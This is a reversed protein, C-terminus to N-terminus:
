YLLRANPPIGLYIGPGIPKMLRYSPADHTSGLFGAQIFRINGQNDIVLQTNMCHYHRHGNYFPRQPESLLRYIRHPIADIASTVNHFEPRNGMLNGWEMVNVWRIQTQFYRWLEPLTRYLVRIVSTPDIDFWLALTDVHPYKRLWMMVILIQNITNLKHPRQRRRPCGDLTLHFRTPM